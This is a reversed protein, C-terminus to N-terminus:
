GWLLLMWCYMFALIGVFKIGAALGVFTWFIGADIRLLIDLVLCGVVVKNGDEDTVLYSFLLWFVGVMVGAKFFNFFWGRWFEFVFKATILAILAVALIFLLIRM